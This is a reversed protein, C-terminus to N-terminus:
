AVEPHQSAMHRKLNAFSRKCCPCVGNAVRKTLRAVMGEAAARAAAESAARAETRALRDQCRALEERALEAPTKATYHQQHGNPCYFIRHTEKFRTDHYETMAFVVGCACCENPILKVTQAVVV